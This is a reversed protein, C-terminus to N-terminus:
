ILAAIERNAFDLRDSLLRIIMRHFASAIDPDDRQMRDFASRTLRYLISAEEAVVGAGRPMDRYFGMEGIVTQGAMRRLRRPRGQQDRIIIAVGGSALMDLSDSPAGQEFISDGATYEHREFYSTMRAVDVGEGLEGALWEEFTSDSAKAVNYDELLMNECWELAENRDDFARHLVGDDFFGAGDFSAKMQETLGSFVLITGREECYNKLKVLSLVASTDLGPVGGFDLILFTTAAAKGAQQDMRTRVQEFLGNSSGFFIFGSLWFVHVRQGYEHLYRAEGPSREVDSAFEARTLYRRVVGIRSYSFAFLLCAGIVGLVVGLLYGSYVIVAMIAAALLLDTGSRQAPSRVLGEKLIVLGLYALLGGLLPVPILTAVDAGFLLVLGCVLAAFVGSARSVAGAENILISGNLSLNGAVGGLMGAVVNAIGNTRLEKDLDASKQRAVELSSVDLLMSVATVGCVAGIEAANQAILLWDIGFKSIAAVPVWLELPGMGRLFWSEEGGSSDAFGFGLLVSDLVIVFAFFTLPLVLFSDFQRRIVFVSVAFLLGVAFQPLHDPEFLAGLATLSLGPAVGTMVEVGGTILLWGSAALFGGIVPYPVFRLWIGLRLAGLGFLVLGTFLTSITIAIMVHIVAMEDSLGAASFHAAISAALVSMVAVAPTDPGADAPALTTTLAVIVGTVVTGTLLASLGLTF